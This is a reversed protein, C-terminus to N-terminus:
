IHRVIFRGGYYLVCLCVFVCLAIKMVGIPTPDDVIMKVGVRAKDVISDAETFQSRLRELVKSDDDLVNRVRKVAGLLNATDQELGEIEYDNETNYKNMDCKPM